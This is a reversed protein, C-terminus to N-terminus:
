RSDLPISLPNKINDHLDKNKIIKAAASAATTFRWTHDITEGSVIAKIHAEYETNPILPSMAAFAFIYPYGNSAPSCTYIALDNGGVLHLSYTKIDMMGAQKPGFLTIAFGVPYNAGPFPEPLEGGQFSIPVDKQNDGPYIVTSNDGGTLSGYNLTYFIEEQGYGLQTLGSHLIPYRHLPGAVQLDVANSPSDFYQGIGEMVITTPFGFYPARDWASIGTFGPKGAEEKHNLGNLVMYHSHAQAALILSPHLVMPNLGVASRHANIRALATDALVTNDLTPVPTPTRIPTPTPTSTPPLTPTPTSYGIPLLGILEVADIEEWGEVKTFIKIGTVEYPTMDFSIEFWANAIRPTTDSGKWITHSAGASDIFDVQYIFGNNNTEHVRVQTANVPMLYNLRLWEETLGSLFPAWATGFDGYNATNPEGTAQKASYSTSRFESSAEAAIAWQRSDRESPTRTAIPTNTVSPTFTATPALTSTPKLTATSTSSPKPTVTATLAPKPTATATSTSIPKITSSPIPTSTSKATPAPTLMPEPTPLPSDPPLIGILEVADVEEWGTIRTYLKVGITKYSVPDFSIEFWSNDQRPTKDEGTWITHLVGDIDLLDVQYIFGNNNTEHVRVQAAFVPTQYKLLLWEEGAGNTLPAWATGYDGNKPTNPEGTAQGASYTSNRFQSSAEASAAWQRFEGEAPTKTPTPETTSVPTATSDPKMTTTPFSTVVPTPTTAAIRTTVPTVIPTPTSVPTNTKIEAPTVSPTPSPPTEPPINGILEVADIEEWGTIRTHIKMGNVAYPVPEFAIEM